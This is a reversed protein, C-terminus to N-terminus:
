NVQVCLVSLGLLCFSVDGISGVKAALHYPMDVTWGAPTAIRIQQTIRVRTTRRLQAIKGSTMKNIAM